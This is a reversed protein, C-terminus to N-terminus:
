RRHPAGFKGLESVSRIVKQFEPHVPNLVLNHEEPVLVSPVSMALPARIGTLGFLNEEGFDQTASIDPVANWEVPLDEVDFKAVLKDPVSISYRYHVYGSVSLGNHSIWELTALAISQSCYVARRGLPNWRGAVFLGGEGSFVRAPNKDSHIRYWTAM